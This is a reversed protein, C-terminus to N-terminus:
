KVSKAIVSKVHDNVIFLSAMEVVQLETIRLIDVVGAAAFILNESSQDL